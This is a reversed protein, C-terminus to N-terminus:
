YMDVFARRVGDHTMALWPVTGVLPPLLGTHTGIPWIQVWAFGAAVVAVVAGAWLPFLREGTLSLPRPWFMVPLVIGLLTLVVAISLVPGRIGPVVHNHPLALLRATHGTVFTSFHACAVCLFCISIILQEHLLPADAPAGELILKLPWPSSVFVAVGVIVPSWFWFQPMRLYSLLVRAVIRWFNSTRTERM